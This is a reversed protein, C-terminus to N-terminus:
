KNENKIEIQCLNSISNFRKPWTNDKKTLQKELQKIRKKIEKNKNKEKILLDRQSLIELKYKNIKEKTSGIITLEQNVM